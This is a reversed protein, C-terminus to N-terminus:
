ENDRKNKGAECGCYVKDFDDKGNPVNIIGENECMACEKKLSNTIMDMQAKHFDMVKKENM